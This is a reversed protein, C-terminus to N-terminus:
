LKEILEKIMRTRVINGLAQSSKSDSLVEIAEDYEKCGELARGLLYDVGDSWRQADEKDKLGNLWNKAANVSSNDFLCQSLFFGADRRILRMQNQVSEVEQLFSQANQGAEKRIGLIKQLRKDSGLSDMDSDDYMLRQCSEIANMMTANPDTIFKGKFFRARTTRYVIFNDIYAEEIYHWRLKDQLDNNTSAELAERVAQRFQHTQIAIAWAKPEVGEVKPLVASVGDGSYALPLKNEGILSQELAFMRKSGSEPRVYILADLEKLDEPKVWYSTNDELSEENSLSLGSILEENERVEALTAIAGLKKSPIPLAMKTDFLYYNDGIAVGVAWPLAGETKPQLMVSDVEMHRILTMFLKARDVYDARGYLLAQWPYRQYGLGPIGKSHPLGQNDNLAAEAMQEESLQTDPLLQINRCVWDFLKLSNTLKTAQGDDLDPHLKKVVELVPTAVDEGPSYQDAALRYLEFPRLQTSESVRNAIQSVWAAEQLYYADTTLFSYEADRALMPLTENEKYLSQSMSDPNWNVREETLKEPSYSVWRNLGNSLKEKFEKQEFRIEAFIFDMTRSLDDVTTKRLDSELMDIMPDSPPTCGITVMGAFLLVLGFVHNLPQRSKGIRKHSSM